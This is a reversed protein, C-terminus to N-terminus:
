LNKFIAIHEQIVDRWTWEFEIKKIKEIYNNYNRKELLYLMKNKIDSKDCPNIFILDNRFTEFYETEKTLLIPKEMKICDLAFNPTIDTLSSLICLYSKQIEKLLKQHPISKEIFVNNELKMEKVKLKLRHEEPGEGIIRLRMAKHTQELIEAFIDILLSLNKLRTLRGAFLLECNNLSQNDNILSEDSLEPLPNAIVVINKEKLGYYAKYTEKQFNSTFIVKNASSLIRRIILIWFKEKLTKPEKYYQKLTKDTRGSEFAREWLFDGGLRILFKKNRLKSILYVPLGCSIANFAYILDCDKSKQFLSIFYAFFRLFHPYKNIDNYSFVRAEIGKEEFRQELNKVYQSPGGIQPPYIPTALVIKM